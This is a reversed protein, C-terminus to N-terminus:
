TLKILASYCVPSCGKGNPRYKTYNISYNNIQYLITPKIDKQYCSHEMITVSIKELKKSSNDILANLIISSVNENKLYRVEAGKQYASTINCFDITENNKIILLNKEILQGPILINITAARCSLLTCSRFVVFGLSVLITLIILIIIGIKVGRTINM